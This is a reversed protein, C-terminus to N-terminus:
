APEEVRHGLLASIAAATNVVHHGVETLNHMAFSQSLTAVAFGAVPRGLHNLIAAGVAVVGADVDENSYSFGTKLIEQRESSLKEVLEQSAQGSGNAELRQFYAVFEDDPMAALVAKAAAGKHLPLRRGIDCYFRISRRGDFRDVFVIENNVPVALTVTEGTQQRLEKLHAAALQRVDLDNLVAASLALISTGLRYKRNLPDQELLGAALLTALSRHVTQKPQGTLQVMEALSAGGSLDTFLKLTNLMMLGSKNIGM